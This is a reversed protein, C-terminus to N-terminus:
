LRKLLPPLEALSTITVDPAVNEPQKEDRRKVYVAIMGVAKAGEVDADMTDGVFVTNAASVGLANLTGNFIEPSPKRKNVAGSVVVTVFFSDLGYTKLLRHVCEPIAYNSVIGLKYKGQLSRLLPLAEEDPYVYKMFEECWVDSAQLVLPSSADYNYGLMKLALATRVNFHPEELNPDAKAYLEDRAKDYAEKFQELPVDVGNESLFKYMQLLSPSYFDQNKRIIMLTDFMDFLVAKVTM